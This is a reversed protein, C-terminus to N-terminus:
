IISPACISLIDAKISSLCPTEVNLTWKYYKGSPMIYYGQPSLYNHILEGMVSPKVQSGWHKYAIQPQWPLLKGNNNHTNQTTPIKHPASATMLQQLNFEPVLSKKAAVNVFM